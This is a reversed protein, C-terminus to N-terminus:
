VTFRAFRMRTIDTQFCGVLQCHVPRLCALTTLKFFDVLKSLSGPSPMSTNDTQFCGASQILTSGRPFHRHAGAASFSRFSNVPVCKGFLFFEPEAQQRPCVKWLPFVKQNQRNVPVCKGFLFFKRARRALHITHTERETVM